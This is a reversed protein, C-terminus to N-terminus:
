EMTFGTGCKTVAIKLKERLDTKSNYMPLDIRNFCTHARPFLATKLAVGQITFKKINGDGGQLVEFGRTPVGSTGTVFQLLRAKTERDFDHEVVDWFWKCVRHNGKEREFTGKYITHKRWDALDIEPLGCLVLELEQFDFVTLLTQPVVDYFGLLLETLQLKIRGLMAYKMYEELYEVRNDGTLNVDKGNDILEVVEKAGMREETVTFDCCLYEVQDKDMEMVNKLTSYLESDVNELDAFTVPWGLIHKYLYQVMHGGIFYGGFMARGMMRGLFRFYVLHDEPCSLKSAPNIRMAMQNEANASLWLVNDADFIEKTVLEFFEKALGGADIGEEGLFDSGFGCRRRGVHDNRTDKRGRRYPDLHIEHRHRPYHAVM